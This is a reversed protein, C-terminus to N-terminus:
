YRLRQYLLVAAFGIPMSLAILLTPVTVVPAWEIRDLGLLTRVTLFAAWAAATFAISGALAFTLAVFNRPMNWRKRYRRDRWWFWWLFGASFGGMAIWASLLVISIGTWPEDM